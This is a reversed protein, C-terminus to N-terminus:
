QQSTGDKPWASFRPSECADCSVGLTAVTQAFDPSVVRFAALQSFPHPPIRVGPVTERVATKLVAAKSWEAVWGTEAITRKKGSAAFRQCVPSWWKTMHLPHRVSRVNARLFERLKDEAYFILAVLLAVVPGLLFSLTVVAFPIALPPFTVVIWTSLAVALTLVFLSRTGFRMSAM